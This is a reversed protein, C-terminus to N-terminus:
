AWGVWWRSIVRSRMFQGLASCGCRDACVPLPEAARRTECCQTRRLQWLALPLDLVDKYSELCPAHSLDQAVSLLLM